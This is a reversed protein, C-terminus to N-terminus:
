ALLSAIVRALVSREGNARYDELIYNIAIRNIENESTKKGQRKYTYVIDALQGKEDATLRIFSVEKGPVKVAKRIMEIMDDQNSAITSALKSAHKSDKNSSKKSTTPPPTRNTEGTSITESKEKYTDPQSTQQSLDEDEQSGLMREEAEVEEATRLIAERGRPKLEDLEPFTLPQRKSAM